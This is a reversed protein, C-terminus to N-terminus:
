GNESVLDLVTPKEAIAYSCLSYAHMENNDFDNKVGALVAQTEAESWGGIRTFLALSYSDVAGNIFHYKFYKGIEKLKKDKPWTGIPCPRETSTVNAFGAQRLWDPMLPFPDFERNNDRAIKHFVELLKYVDSTTSCTGDDCFLQTRAEALEIKGGPKLHDYAQQLITPWDSM